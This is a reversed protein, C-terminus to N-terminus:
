DMCTVVNYHRTLNESTSTVGPVKQVLNREPFRRFPALVYMYNAVVTFLFSSMERQVYGGSLNGGSLEGVSKVRGVIAKLGWECKGGYSM